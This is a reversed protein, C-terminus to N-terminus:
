ALRWRRLKNHLTKVSVGLVHAARTKNGNLSALTKVILERESAELTTGLPLVVDSRQDDSRTKCGPTMFLCQATITGNPCAIVAREVVNKLERVNGPWSHERLRKMASEDVSQVQRSYKQNAEAVFAEVLGPIDETRRRLPPMPINLVNIRYYLDDRFTGDRMAQAVNQNTAAMVRVDVKVEGSGGLRRVMGDQLPRLYKAQLGNSMEAIEDLFITGGNALEFYGARRSLAGTFAGKEYGFLESELLTEPVASCNVAVFPHKGRESFDHITRAVLEKGTGTEGSIMVPASTSAALEVMRYVEQMPESAGILHGVGRGESLQRRFASGERADVVKALAKELIAKLGKPDVPKTLYDFAGEKMAAVAHEITGHGTLVVVPTTPLEEHVSRLFDLGGLGSVFLDAIVVSPQCALTRELAQSADTASEVDYGWRALQSTLNEVLAADDDAILIRQKM